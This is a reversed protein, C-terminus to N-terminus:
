VSGDPTTQGFGIGLEQAFAKAVLDGGNMRDVIDNCVRIVTKGKKERSLFAYFSVAEEVRIRPTSVAAAITDMSEDSVQGCAAQVQILIAMLRTRDNAHRACIERVERGISSAM